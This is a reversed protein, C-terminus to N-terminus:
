DTELTWDSEASTFVSIFMYHIEDTTGSLVWRGNEETVTVVGSSNADPNWDYSRELEVEFYDGTWSAHVELTCDPVGGLGTSKDVCLRGDEDHAHIEELLRTATSATFLRNTMEFLEDYSKCFSADVPYAIPRRDEDMPPYEMDDAYAMDIVPTRNFFWREYFDTAELLLTRLDAATLRTEAPTPTPAETPEATPEATPAITPAATPEPEATEEQASPVATANPETNESAGGFPSFRVCASLLLTCLLILSAFAAFTKKM